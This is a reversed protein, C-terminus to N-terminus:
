CYLWTASYSALTYSSNKEIARDRYYFSMVTHKQDLLVGMGKYVTSVIETCDDASTYWRENNYWQSMKWCPLVYWYSWYSMVNVDFVIERNPLTM